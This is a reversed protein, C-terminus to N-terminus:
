HLSHKKKWERIMPAIGSASSVRPKWALLRKAKRIDFWRNEAMSRITEPVIKAPKGTLRSFLKHAHAAALAVPLATSRSPPRVRLARAVLEFAKKQTLHEDSAIIFDENVVRSNVAAVFAKALDNVHIFAIRNGGGGVLTAKGRAVASILPHFQESFQPGYIVTPRLILYPIGSEKLLKEAEVKSKGYENVPTFPQREDVPLYTPRRYVATSSCLIFRKVHCANAASLLHHMSEVNAHWLVRHSSTFDVLGAIHVIEDAGRCAETLVSKSSADSLDALFVKVRHSRPLSHTGKSGPRVILRLAHGADLLARAVVGGLKGTAGTLVITKQKTTSATM